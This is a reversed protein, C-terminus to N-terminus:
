KEKGSMQDELSLLFEEQRQYIEQVLKLIDNLTQQDPSPPPNGGCLYGQNGQNPPLPMVGTYLPNPTYQPLPVREFQPQNQNQPIPIQGSPIFKIFAGCDLCKYYMKGINPGQQTLGTGSNYSPCKKCKVQIGTSSM